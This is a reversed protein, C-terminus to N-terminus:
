RHPSSGAAPELNGGSAPYRGRPPFRCVELWYREMVRLVSQFEEFATPKQVYSNAGLAYCQAIDDDRPSTTFAVVPITRLGEDSKVRALVEKGSLRPMNLDVLILDPRPARESGAFRGSQCLYEIAEEGDSVMFIRKGIGSSELAERILIQDGLDDEAVLIVAPAHLHSSGM